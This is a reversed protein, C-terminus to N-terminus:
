EGEPDFSESSHRLSEALEQKEHYRDAAEDNAMEARMEALREDYGFGYIDSADIAPQQNSEMPSKQNFRAVLEADTAQYAIQKATAEIDTGAQALAEGHKAVDAFNEESKAANILRLCDCAILILENLHM